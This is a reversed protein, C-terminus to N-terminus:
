DYDWYDYDRCDYDWDDYDWYYDDWYDFQRSQGTQKDTSAQM